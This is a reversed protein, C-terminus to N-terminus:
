GHREGRERKLCWYLDWFVVVLMGTMFWFEWGFRM